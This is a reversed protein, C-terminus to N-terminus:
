NGIPPEEKFNGSYATGDVTGFIKGSFERVEALMEHNGVFRSSTGEADGEQPMAKLVTQFKPEDIAMQIEDAAVPAATKVDGGLMYVTAEQKDHDVVFEVHYKGGGWDSVTGGHPADSHVHGGGHNAHTTGDAHTHTDDNHSQSGSEYECGTFMMPIVLLTAILTRKMTKDKLRVFKFILM